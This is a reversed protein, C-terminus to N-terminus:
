TIEKNEINKKQILAPNFPSILLIRRTVSVRPLGVKMQNVHAFLVLILNNFAANEKKKDQFL